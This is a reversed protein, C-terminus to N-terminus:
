FELTRALANPLYTRPRWGLKRAILRDDAYYDGIDIKKREAPFERLFRHPSDAPIYYQGVCVRLQEHRKLLPFLWADESYSVGCLIMRLGPWERLLAAVDAPTTIDRNLLVPLRHTM